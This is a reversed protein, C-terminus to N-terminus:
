WRMSRPMPLCLRLLTMLTRCRLTLRAVPRYLLLPKVKVTVEKFQADQFKAREIYSRPAISLPPPPPRPPSLANAVPHPLLRYPPPRVRPFRQPHFDKQLTGGARDQTAAHGQLGDRQMHPQWSAACFGARLMILVCLSHRVHFTPKTASCFSANVQMLENVLRPKWSGLAKEM